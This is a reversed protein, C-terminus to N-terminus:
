PTREPLRRQRVATRRTSTTPKAEAKGSRQTTAQQSKAWDFLDGQARRTEAAIFAKAKVERAIWDTIFTQAGGLGALTAADLFHSRYGTDSLPHPERRAVSEIELHDHGLGLYDPTHRIELQHPRQTLPHTWSIRYSQTKPKRRTKQAPTPKSAAPKKM